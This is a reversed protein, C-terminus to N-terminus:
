SRERHLVTFFIILGLTLLLLDEAPPLCDDAPPLAERAGILILCSLPIVHSWLSTMNYKVIFNLSLVAISCTARFQFM